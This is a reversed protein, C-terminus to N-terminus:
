RLFDVLRLNRSRASVAFLAEMQAQSQELRTAIEYPDVALIDSLTVAVESMRAANRANVNSIKEQTAGVEARISSLNSQLQLLQDRSSQLLAAQTSADLSLTDDMALKAALTSKMADRFVADDARIAMSVSEADNLAVRRVSTQAGLFATTEFGGAPTDFWTDLANLIDTATVAGSVASRATAYITESNALAPQDTATGAFISTEAHRTNLRDVIMEFVHGSSNSIAQRADSSQQIDSRLFLSSLDSTADQIDGLVFQITEAKVAVETGIQRFASLRQTESQLSAVERMSVGLHSAPDSTLGTTLQQSLASVSRKLQAQRTQLGFLQALDGISQM